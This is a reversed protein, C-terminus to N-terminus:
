FSHFLHVCRPSQLVFRSSLSVVKCQHSVNKKRTGSAIFLHHNHNGLLVSWHFQNKNKDQDCFFHCNIFLIPIKRPMVPIILRTSYKLLFKALETVLRPSITKVIM